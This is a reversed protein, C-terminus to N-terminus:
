NSGPFVEHQKWLYCPSSQAPVDNWIFSAEFYSQNKTLILPQLNSAWVIQGWYVSRESRPAMEMSTNWVSQGLWPAAHPDSNFGPSATRRPVLQCCSQQHVLHSPLRRAAWVAGYTTLLLSLNKPDSGDAGQNWSSTRPLATIVIFIFSTLSSTLGSLCPLPLLFLQRNRM